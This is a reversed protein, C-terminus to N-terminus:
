RGIKKYLKKLKKSIKNLGPNNMVKIVNHVIELEKLHGEDLNEGLSSYDKLMTNQEIPLGSKKLEIAAYELHEKESKFTNTKNNLIPVRGNIIHFEGAGIIDSELVKNKILKSLYKKLKTYLSRHTVLFKNNKVNEYYALRNSYLKNGLSDM